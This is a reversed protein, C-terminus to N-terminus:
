GNGDGQASAAAQGPMAEARRQDRAWATYTGAAFMVSNFGVDRFDHLYITTHSRGVDMHDILYTRGPELYKAAQDQDGQYGNGPYAFRAYIPFVKNSM